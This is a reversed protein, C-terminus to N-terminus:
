LKNFSLNKKASIAIIQSLHNEFVDYFDQKDHLVIISGQSIKDDRVIRVRQFDYTMYSWLVIKFKKKLENYIPFTLHGYPPRFLSSNIVDGALKADYLYFDKSVKFASKHFFSHLGVSHGRKVIEDQLHPYKLVNQGVCFFTAKIGKKDLLDLIRGTNESPSDDITIYLDNKLKTIVEPFFLKAFPPKYFRM